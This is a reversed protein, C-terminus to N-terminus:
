YHLSMTFIIVKAKVVYISLVIIVVYLWMKEGGTISFEFRRGYLPLFTWLYYIKCSYIPM